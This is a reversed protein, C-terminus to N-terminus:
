IPTRAISIGERFPVVLLFRGSVSEMELEGSDARNSLSCAPSDWALADISWHFGRGHCAHPGRGAAFVSVPDAGALGSVHAFGSIAGTGFAVVASESGIWMSPVSGDRDFLSRLAFFHDMRGGDGGVLIVDDIGREAMALLAIETDSYDKDAEWIRKKDPPYKDLLSRDGLSDMDGLVLDAPIGSRECAILGSDAAIVFSFPSIWAKLFSTDPQLGGTFIIGRM